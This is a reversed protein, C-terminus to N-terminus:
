GGALAAKVDNQYAHLKQIWFLISALALTTSGGILWYGRVVEALLGLTLWILSVKFLRPAVAIIEPDPPNEHLVRYCNWGALTAHLLVAFATMQGLTNPFGRLTAAFLLVFLFLGIVTALSLLNWLERGWRPLDSPKQHFPLLAVGVVFLFAFLNALFAVGLLTGSLLGTFGKLETLGIVFNIGFISYAYLSLSLLLKIHQKPFSSLLVAHGAVFLAGMGAGTVLLFDAQLWLLLVAFVLMPLVKIWIWLASM